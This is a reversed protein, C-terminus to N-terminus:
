RRGNVYRRMIFLGVIAVAVVLLVIIVIGATLGASTTHGGKATSMSICLHSGVNRVHFRWNSYSM